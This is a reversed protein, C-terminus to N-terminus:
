VGVPVVDFAKKDSQNRWRSYNGNCNWKRYLLTRLNADSIPADADDVGGVACSM